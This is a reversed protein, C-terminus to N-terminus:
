ARDTCMRSRWVYLKMKAAQVIIEGNRAKSKRCNSSTNGNQSPDLGTKPGMRRGMMLDLPLAASAYLRGNVEM